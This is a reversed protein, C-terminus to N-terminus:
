TRYVNQKEFVHSNRHYTSVCNLTKSLSLIMLSEKERLLSNFLVAIAIRHLLVHGCSSTDAMTTLVIPFGTIVIYVHQQQQQGNGAHLSASLVGIM